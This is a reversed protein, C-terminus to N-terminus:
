EGLQHTSKLLDNVTKVPSFTDLPVEVFVTIWNAMAGNWLGPLEYSKLDKGKFNKQVIFGSNVDVYQRLDFKNGKYDKIACVLDVPNFHTAEALLETQYSDQTDVQTSEVIQLSVKGMNDIIWFPGGGPEGENKVMGCIRIPRNLVEFIYAIKYQKKFKDLDPHLQVTLDNKLFSLMESLVLKDVEKREILGLYHFVRKQLDLLVGALAKKYKVVLDLQGNTVNDINKIFVIDSDIANLNEILAGHGGPRFLLSGDKQRFPKNDLEVALTDTAIHQYSFDVDLEIGNKEEICSKSKSLVDNFYDLHNESITFHVKAKGNSSAYKVAEVLHEEIPTAVHKGYSHFPLVAKPKEIFNFNEDQLLTKVFYYVRKERPWDLFDPYKNGLYNRIVTYFPFKDIGALFVQIANDNYKNTYSNLTDQDPDFKNVFESLFKFMRSAAGSAPVFKSLSLKERNNEFVTGYFSIEQPTLVKIGDSIKAPRDIISKKIGKKYFILQRGVNDALVGRKYIQFFDDSTFGLNKIKFYSTIISAANEADSEYDCKFFVFPKKNGELVSKFSEVIIKRNKENENSLGADTLLGLDHPQNLDKVNSLPNYTVKKLSIYSAEKQYNNQIVSAIQDTLSTKYGINSEYINIIVKYIPQNTKEM